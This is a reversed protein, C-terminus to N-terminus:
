SMEEKISKKRNNKEKKTKIEKNWKRNDSKEILKNLTKM